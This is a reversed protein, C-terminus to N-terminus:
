LKTTMMQSAVSHRGSSESGRIIGRSARMYVRIAEAKDRIDLVEDMTSAKSLANKAASIKSLMGSSTLNADQM